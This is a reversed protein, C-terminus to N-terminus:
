RSGSAGHRYQYVVLIAAQLLGPAARPPRQVSTAFKPCPNTQRVFPLESNATGAARARDLSVRMGIIADGFRTETDVLANLAAFAAEQKSSPPKVPVPLILRPTFISMFSAAAPVSAKADSTASSAPLRVPALAAASSAAGTVPTVGSGALTLAITAVASLTLGLRRRHTRTKSLDM